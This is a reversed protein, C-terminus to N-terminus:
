ARQSFGFKGRKSASAQLCAHSKNFSPCKLLDAFYLDFTSVNYIFKALPYTNAFIRVYFAFLQALSAHFYPTM